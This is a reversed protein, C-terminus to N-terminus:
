PDRRPQKQSQARWWGFSIGNQSTREMSLLRHRFAALSSGVACLWDRVGTGPGRASRHVRPVCIVMECRAIFSATHATAPARPRAAQLWLLLLELPDTELVDPPNPETGAALPVGCAPVIVQASAGPVAGVQINGTTGDAAPVTEEVL